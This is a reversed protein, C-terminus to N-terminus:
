FEEGKEKAKLAALETTFIPADLEEADLDM